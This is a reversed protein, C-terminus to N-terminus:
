YSGSWAVSVEKAGPVISLQSKGDGRQANWLWSGIAYGVVGGGVVDSTWHQRTATRGMSAAAVLGYLWPANYEKAFPTVAAFAVAAHNSPFSSDSRGNASHAWRGLEEDPRARNVVHKAAVSVGAAALISELSIVGVNQARDDGFLVAAGALGALAIPTAKAVNGWPRVASSDQHRQMFRDVPKDLAVGGALAAAAFFGGQMWEPARPTSSASQEVRM